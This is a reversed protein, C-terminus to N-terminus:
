GQLYESGDEYNDCGEGRNCECGDGCACGVCHAEFIEEESMGHNDFLMMGCGDKHLCGDCPSTDSWRSTQAQEEEEASIAEMLAKVADIIACLKKGHFQGGSLAIRMEGNGGIKFIVDGESNRHIRMYTDPDYDSKIKVFDGNYHYSM